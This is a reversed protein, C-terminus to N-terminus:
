PLGVAFPEHRRRANYPVVAVVGVQHDRRVLARCGERVNRVTQGSVVSEPQAVGEGGATRHAIVVLGHADRGPTGPLRDLPVEALQVQVGLGLGEGHDADAVHGPVNEAVAHEQGLVDPQERGEVM